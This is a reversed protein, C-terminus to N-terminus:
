FSNENSPDIFDTLDKSVPAAGQEKDEFLVRVGIYRVRAYGTSGSRNKAILLDCLGTADEGNPFTEIRYYEPRYCFIVLNSDEEISGSQKLDALQPLKNPRSEVERNLQSLQIIPINLGKATQKLTRTIDTLKKTEGEYKRDSFGNLLQIYDIFVVGNSYIRNFRKIEFIVQTLNSARENIVLPWESVMATEQQFTAVQDINLGYTFLETMNFSGETICHIRKVIEESTMERSFLLCPVGRQCLHVISKLALASKGMGPRGAITILHGRQWGGTKRDLESLGTELGVLGKNKAAETMQNITAKVQDTITLEQNPNTQEEIHKLEDNALSLLDEVSHNPDKAYANMRLGYANVSIRIFDKLLEKCLSETISPADAEALLNFGLIEVESAKLSKLHKEARKMVIFSDFGEGSDLVECIAKFYGRNAEDQFVNAQPIAEALTVAASEYTLATGIIRKEINTM